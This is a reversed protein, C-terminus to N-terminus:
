ALVIHMTKQLTEDRLHRKMSGYSATKITKLLRFLCTQHHRQNELRADRTKLVSLMHLPEM